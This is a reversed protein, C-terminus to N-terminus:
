FWWQFVILILHRTLDLNMVVKNVMKLSVSINHLKLNTRSLFVPLSIGSGDLVSNMSFNEAFLTAKDSASSLVKPGNFQPPIASKVKRPVSNAIRWFDCSGLKQCTISEKTENAYALKAGELVRKRCNSAQRFKLKSHSSKERQYFRFFHNKIIIAAPCAASFM